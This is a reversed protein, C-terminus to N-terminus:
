KCRNYFQSLSAKSEGQSVLYDLERRADANRKEQLLADIYDIRFDKSNPSLRLAQEYDFLSLSVMGQEKEIGARAAYAVASDPYQSVLRNAMDLAETFHKDEQNLITLGLQGEFNGPVISLMTEYDLRAFKNRHLKVNTYARYFLAAVNQPNQRLIYDYEDKAYAWQELQLNFSAKRLRLDIDSPLYALRETAMKLSDRLANHQQAKVSSFTFLMTSMLPILWPARNLTKCKVYKILQM